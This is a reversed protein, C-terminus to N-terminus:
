KLLINIAEDVPFFDGNKFAVLKFDTIGREQLQKKALEFSDLSTIKGYSFLIKGENTKKFYLNNELKLEDHSFISAFVGVQISIFLEPILDICNLKNNLQIMESTFSLNNLNTTITDFSKYNSPTQFSKILELSSKDFSLTDGNKIIEKLIFKAKAQNIREKSLVSPKKEANLKELNFKELRLKSEAFLEELLQLNEKDNSTLKLQSTKHTIQNELKKNFQQELNIIAQYNLLENDNVINTFTIFQSKYSPDILNILSQKKLYNVIVDEEKCKVTYTNLYQSKIKLANLFSNLEQKLSISSSDESGDLYFIIKNTQFKLQKDLSLMYFRKEFINIDINESLSLVKILYSPDLSNLIPKYRIIKKIEITDISYCECCIKHNDSITDQSFYLNLQLGSVALFCYCIFVLKM